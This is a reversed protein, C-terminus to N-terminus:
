HNWKMWSIWRTKVRWNKKALTELNSVFEESFGM